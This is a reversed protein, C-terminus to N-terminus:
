KIKTITMMEDGTSVDRYYDLTGDDSNMWEARLPVGARLLDDFSSVVRTRFAQTEDNAVQVDGKSISLQLATNTPNMLVGGALRIETNSPDVEEAEVSEIMRALLVRSTPANDFHGLWSTCRSFDHVSVLICTGIKGTYLLADGSVKQWQGQEIEIQNHSERGELFVSM